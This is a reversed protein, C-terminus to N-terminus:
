PSTARSVLVDALVDFMKWALGIGGVAGGIKLMVQLLQEIRYLRMSLGPNDPTQRYLEDDHKAVTAAVDDLDPM